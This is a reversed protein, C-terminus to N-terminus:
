RRSGTPRIYCAAFHPPAAMPESDPLRVDDDLADLSLQLHEKLLARAPDKFFAELSMSEDCEEFIHEDGGFSYRTTM